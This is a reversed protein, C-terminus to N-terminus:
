EKKEEGEGCWDEASTTPWNARCSDAIRPACKRCRGYRPDVKEWFRCRDCRM